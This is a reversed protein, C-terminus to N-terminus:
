NTKKLQRRYESYCAKHYINKSHTYLNKPDDYSGCYYCKRWGAHGCAALARMRRHLLMHYAHNECVVIKTNDTKTGYHHIEEGKLLPRGLLQQAIILHEYVYGSQHARPHSPMRIAWYGDSCLHRGGKWNPHEKGKKFGSTKRPM